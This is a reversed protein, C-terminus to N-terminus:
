VMKTHCRPPISSLVRIRFPQGVLLDVTARTSWCAHSTFGPVFTAQEGVEDFARGSDRNHKASCFHKDIVEFCRAEATDFAFDHM